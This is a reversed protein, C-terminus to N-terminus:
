QFVVGAPVAQDDDQKHLGVGADPGPDALHDYLELGLEAALDRIERHATGIRSRGHEAFQGNAFFERETWCRGGIREPNAEYSAVDVGAQHLRYTATLGALGAGVVAVQVNSSAMARGKRVRPVHRRSDQVVM